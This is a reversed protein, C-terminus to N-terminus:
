RLKRRRIPLISIQGCTSRGWSAILGATRRALIVTIKPVTAEAYAYLLKSGHRIIGGFEQETRTLFRARRRVDSDSDSRTASAYSAHVRPPRILIWAALPSIRTSEGGCGGDRGGDPCLGVVMNRAFHEAVEFFRRDDVVRCIVDKMDYPKNSEAPILTDLEQDARDEPDKTAARPVGDLNNQPLFTLLERVSRLCDEDNAALFQAVGSVSNHTM